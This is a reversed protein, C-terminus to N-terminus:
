PSLKERMEQAGVIIIQKFTKRMNGEEILIICSRFHGCCTGEEGLRLM